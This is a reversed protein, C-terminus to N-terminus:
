GRSEIAALKELLLKVSENGKYISMFTENNESLHNLAYAYGSLFITRQQMGPCKSIIHKYFVWGAYTERAESVLEPPLDEASMSLDLVIAQYKKYGPSDTLYFEADALNHTITVTHGCSELFCATSIADYDDDVLLIELNPVEM